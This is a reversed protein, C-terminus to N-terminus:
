DKKDAHYILEKKTALEGLRSIHCTIDMASRAFMIGNKYEFKEEMKQRLALKVYAMPLNCGAEAALKIWTPFRPNIEIIFYKGSNQEKIFEVEISGTWKLQKIIKETLAALNDEKATVGMWATGNKAKLIKKMCVSGVVHQRRDALSAICYEDGKIYDQMILPWGQSASLRNGFVVAEELSYVVNANGNSAKIIFPYAFYSATHSIQRRDDLVRSAPCSIGISESFRPLNEKRCTILAAESPILLKINLDRLESEIRAMIPIEYDLNPIIVDIRTKESIEAIRSLYEDEDEHPFPVKYVEDVLNEMYSTSCLLEYALAIIKVEGGFFDKLSRIVSIGPCPTDAANLGTVAIHYKAM